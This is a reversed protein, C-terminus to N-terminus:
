GPAPLDAALGPEVGAAGPREAAGFGAAAARAPQFRLREALWYALTVVTLVFLLLAAPVRVCDRGGDCDMLGPSLVAANAETGGSTFVGDATDGFGIRGATWRILRQEVLTGGASQDWTDVSTNVAAIIGEALVAPLAADASRGGCDGGSELRSIWRVRRGRAGM